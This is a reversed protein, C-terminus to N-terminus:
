HPFIKRRIADLAIDAAIQLGFSGIEALSQKVASFIQPSRIKELFEHGTYTLRYIKYDTVTNEWGVVDAIIYGAEKLILVTYAIEAQRDPFQENLFNRTIFNSQFFVKHSLPDDEYLNTRLALIEHYEEVALLVDRVCDIDLKM